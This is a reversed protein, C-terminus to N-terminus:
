KLNYATSQNLTNQPMTNYEKQLAIFAQV